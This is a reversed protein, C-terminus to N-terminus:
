KASSNAPVDSGNAEPHADSRLRIGLRWASGGPTISRGFRANFEKGLAIKSIAFTGRKKSWAQYVKYLYDVKIRNAPDLEICDAIFADMHAVMAARTAVADEEAKRPKKEVTAEYEARMKEMEEKQFYPNEVVWLPERGLIETVRAKADGSSISYWEGRMQLPRLERHIKHEDEFEGAWVAVPSLECHCGSGLSAFRQDPHTSVGIKVVRHEPCKIAYIYSQKPEPEPAVPAFGSSPNFLDDAELNEFNFDEM